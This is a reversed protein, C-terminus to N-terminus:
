LVWTLAVRHLTRIPYDQSQLCCGCREFTFPSRENLVRSLRLMIVESITKNSLWNTRTATEHRSQVYTHQPSKYASVKFCRGCVLPHFTIASQSCHIDLQPCCFKNQSSHSSNQLDFICQRLALSAKRYQFQPVFPTFFLDFHASQPRTFAGKPSGFHDHFRIKVTGVCCKPARKPEM